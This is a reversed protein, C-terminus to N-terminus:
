KIDKIFPFKRFRSYADTTDPFSDIYIVNYDDSKSVYVRVGLSEIIKVAEDMNSGSEFYITALCTDKVQDIGGRYDNNDYYDIEEYGKLKQIQELARRRDKEIRDKSKKLQDKSLRSEDDVNESEFDFWISSYHGKKGRYFYVPLNEKEFAQAASDPQCKASISLFHGYLGTNVSLRMLYEDILSCVKANNKQYDDCQDERFGLELVIDGNNNFFKAEYMHGCVDGYVLRNGALLKVAKKIEKKDTIFLVSNEKYISTRTFGTSGVIICKVSDANVKGYQYVHGFADCYGSALLIVLLLKLRCIYKM